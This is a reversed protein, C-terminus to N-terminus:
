KAAAFPDTGKPLLDSFRFTYTPFGVAYPAIEYQQYFITLGTEKVYFDPDEKLGNFVDAYGDKKINEKLKTNLKKKANMSSHLLDNITIQKGDKLSFTYGKRLTSGHAGGRYEDHETVISLVGERNFTVLYNGNFEYKRELESDRKQSKTKADAAFSEAQQKVVKNIAKQADRNSLGSLQPYRILIDANKDQTSITETTIQINNTQRKTLNLTHSAVHYSGQFGMYEHLVKFSVYLKGGINKAEYNNSNNGIYYDNIYTSIGYESVQLSLKTIGTGVHYTKTKADYTIPLGVTDRLVSIPIMTNGGILQGQLSLVKGNYKLTVGTQTTEKVVSKVGSQAANAESLMGVNTILAGAVIAAAARKIKKNM